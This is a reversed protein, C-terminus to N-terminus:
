VAVTVFPMHSVGVLAGKGEIWQRLHLIVVIDPMILFFYIYLVSLGFENEQCNNDTLLNILPNGEEQVVQLTDRSM